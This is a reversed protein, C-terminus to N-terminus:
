SRSRRDHDACYPRRGEKDRGADDPLTIKGCYMYPPRDTAAGLPWHCTYKTLQNIDIPGDKPPPEVARNFTPLPQVKGEAISNIRMQVARNRLAKARKNNNAEGTVDDVSQVVDELKKRRVVHVRTGRRAKHAAPYREKLRMREIKGIVANRSVSIQFTRNLDHMIDKSTLNTNAFLNELREEVESTWASEILAESTM